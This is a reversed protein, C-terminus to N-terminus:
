DSIVGSTPIEAKGTLIDKRDKVDFYYQMVDRAAEAANSSTYGYAIRVAIAMQPDSSPAFGIFLAHNPRSRVQQATGTKGAADVGSDKFAAADEVVGRMGNHIARWIGDTSEITNRVNPSYNELMRGESNTLKDMLSIDYCTGKNAVCAAYRGLAATTFSNTGQGIASRVADEDSITPEAETLEIGSKETLGFIDAYKELKELGIESRYKGTGDLGLRYGDEYFFFNCSNRIAGSVDLEGHKGPYKWCKPNDVKDYQGLCDIKEGLNIVGETLGAMASVIKYTSGPATKQQTAYSYLPNSLDNQLRNYYAADITNALRNNDYSPYTVCARVEGTRSDCVVCSATCPDLALQAPTIELDRILRIMFSYPDLVGAELEKKTQPDDRIVGQEYLAMCIQLPRIEEDRIMYRIVKKKFGNNDHLLEIIRDSLADYIQTSDAYQEETHLKTVDIWEMAIAHKLYEAISITEAKWAQYVEDKEDIADAMLIGNNASALTQIIYSEYVQYEKDLAEYPMQSVLINGRIEGLVSEMKNDIATDIQKEYAFAGDENMHNLDLVSNNLLAYYVSDIPIVINSASENEGQVYEKVNRIHSIIIGALKQELIKYIASQLRADITLYLDNGAVPDTEMAVEVVKGLNDVYVQRLGKEGQLQKEMYQEIGARGVMDNREYNEGEANYTDLETQSIIGTYGLIPSLSPEDIYRRLTDEAIDVGQLESKNEMVMAVTKESIGTAVTTAIYKQFSNLSMAYRVAVIKLIRGPSLGAMPTFDYGERDNPTYQGIGFKKQSCLYEIVEAPTSERERVKMDNIQSYGYIDALFRLRAKGTVAFEYEGDDGLIISFECSLKERNKEVMELLREITDNLQRNKEPGTVDYNDEITVSYALEDYALLEGNKDFIKGRTSKISQEKLIKLTFNNQYDEGNIIQLVFLRQTLVAFLACIVMLLFFLRSTIFNLLHERFDNLM